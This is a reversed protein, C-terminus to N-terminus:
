EETSDYVPYLDKRGLLWTRRFRKKLQRTLRKAGSLIMDDPSVVSNDPYILLEIPYPTVYRKDLKKRLVRRTPDGSWTFEPEGSKTVKSKAVKAIDEACIETLEFAVGEFLIDPEPPDRSEVFEAQAGLGRRKLFEKFIAVERDRKDRRSNSAATM